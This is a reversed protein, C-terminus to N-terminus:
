RFFLNTAKQHPIPWPFSYKHSPCIFQPDLSSDESAMDIIVIQGGMVAGIEKGNGLDQGSGRRYTSGTGVRSRSETKKKEAM